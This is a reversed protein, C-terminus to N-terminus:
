VRDSITLFFKPYVFFGAQRLIPVNVKIKPHKRKLEYNSEFEKERTENVISEFRKLLRIINMDSKLYCKLDRNINESLQTSRMGLILANKMYCYAWKEKHKYIFFLWNEETIKGMLDGFTKEFEGVEEYEYMCANFEGLINVGKKNHCM